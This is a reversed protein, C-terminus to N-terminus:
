ADLVDLGHDHIVFVFHQTRWPEFRPLRGPDPVANRSAIGPPLAFPGRTSLKTRYLCPNRNQDLAFGGFPPSAFGGTKPVEWSLPTASMCRLSRNSFARRRALICVSAM